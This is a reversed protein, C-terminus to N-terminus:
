RRTGIGLRQWLQLLLGRIRADLALVIGAYVLACTGSGFLFRMWGPKLVGALWWAIALCVAVGLLARALVGPSPFQLLDRRVFVCHAIGLALTSIASAYVSGMVHFRPIWLMNLIVNIALSGIMLMLIKQTRKELLLGFGSLALLPYLAFVMGLISFVPGSAIKSPGSLAHIADAGFVGLLMAMGISCYAMPLLVQRKLARVAEVGETQFLRNATPVLAEFVSTNMFTNLQMALSAGVSYIGVAAFEGLMGKLMLRDVVVIAVAVVENAVLPVGYRMGERMQGFSVHARMFRVHRRVWTAYWGTVLIAAALKGGYAAIANRDLLVVAGVMLGVELWRGVVRTVLVTRSQESARLITETLSSFSSLPVAFMAMWFVLHQHAGTLRDITAMVVLLVVWLVLSCALPLYFYNTFFAARDGADDGHPYFRLLSHQAGFKAIAVALLMWNDYYGLIGYQTNDLLRTMLPFSVLGALITSVNGLSYRLYHRGIGVGATTGRMGKAGAKGAREQM